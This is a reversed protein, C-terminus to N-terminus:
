LVATCTVWSPSYVCMRDASRTLVLKVRVFAIVVDDCTYFFNWHAALTTQTWGGTQQSFLCYSRQRARVRKAATAM